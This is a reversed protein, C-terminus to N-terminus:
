PRARADLDEETRDPTGRLDCGQVPGITRTTRTIRAPKGGSPTMRRPADRPSRRSLRTRVYHVNDANPLYGHFPPKPVVLLHGDAGPDIDMFAFTEADEAVRACPATGAVIRCFVCKEDTRTRDAM